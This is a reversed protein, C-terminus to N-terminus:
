ACCITEHLYTNKEENRKCEGVVKAEEISATQRAISFLASYKPYYVNDPYGLREEPFHTRFKNRRM